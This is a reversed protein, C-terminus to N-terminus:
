RWYELGQANGKRSRALMALFRYEQNLKAIPFESVLIQNVLKTAFKSRLNRVNNLVTDGQLKNLYKIKKNFTYIYITLIENNCYFIENNHEYFPYKNKKTQILPLDSNANQRHLTITKM